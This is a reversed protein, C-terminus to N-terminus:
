NPIPFRKYVQLLYIYCETYYRPLGVTEKVHTEPLRFLIYPLIPIFKAVDNVVYFAVTPQDHPDM